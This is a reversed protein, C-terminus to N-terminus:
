PTARHEPGEWGRRGPHPTKHALEIERFKFPEGVRDGGPDAALDAVHPARHAGPVHAEADLANRGAGTRRAAVPVEELLLQQDDHAALARQEM